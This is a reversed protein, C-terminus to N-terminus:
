EPQCGKCYYISGGLYAEKIIDSGCLSCPENVTKKSLKTAYGGPCGFLDKEIDRGGKVVMDQLTFKISHYLKEREEESLTLIKRKPHLQANFLIDQLVGNGLGPIRQETALVFKLSKKQLNEDAILKEFYDLDFEESLPSPKEKAIKYYINDFEGDKFCWIGGYMQISAILASEDEFQVFLQHKKPLKEGKMLYRLNVGEGLLLKTDGLSIEIFGGFVDVKEISKESLKTDYESPDGFFWAFKHPSQNTTVHDIRKGKLAECIQQSLVIAEPIEIM